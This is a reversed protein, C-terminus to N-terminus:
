DIQIHIERQLGGHINVQGVGPVSALSSQIQNGAINDLRDLPAGTLAINL